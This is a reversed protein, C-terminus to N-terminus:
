VFNNREEIAAMPLKYLIRNAAQPLIAGDLIYTVNGGGRMNVFYPHKRGQYTFDLGTTKNLLDFIDKVFCDILVTFFKFVFYSSIVILLTWVLVKVSEANDSLTFSKRRLNLTIVEYLM